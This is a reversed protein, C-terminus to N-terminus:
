SSSFRLKKQVMTNFDRLADSPPTTEKYTAPYTRGGAYFIYTTVEIGDELGITGIESEQRQGSTVGTMKVGSVGDAIGTGRTVSTYGEDLEYDSRHDGEVSYVTIQGFDESGCTGTWKGNRAGAMFLGPNCNELNAARTWGPPHKLTYEGESSSFEVWDATPDDLTVYQITSSSASDSNKFNKDTKDKTNWVYWGTGGVLGVVVLILLAMILTFGASIEKSIKASLGRTNKM